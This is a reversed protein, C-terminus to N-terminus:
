ARCKEVRRTLRAEDFHAAVADTDCANDSGRDLLIEVIATDDPGQRHRRKGDGNRGDPIVAATLNTGHRVLQVILEFRKADFDEEIVAALARAHHKSIQLQQSNRVTNCHAVASQLVADDLVLVPAIRLWSRYTYRVRDGVYSALQRM